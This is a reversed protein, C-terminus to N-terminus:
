EGREAVIIAYKGGRRLVTERITFGARRLLFELDEPAFLCHERFHEIADETPEGGDLYAELPQKVWDYLVLVGGPALLRRFEDVLPAPWPLEHLLHVATVVNAVGDPLPVPGVAVDAEVIEAGCGAALGRAHALMAPQVEVGIVRADPHRSRLLPLLLGPGTGLDVITAGAPPRVLQEWLGWWLAGYRGAATEIMVDRFAAFDRHHRLLHPLSSTSM